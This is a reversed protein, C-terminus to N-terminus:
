KGLLHTQDLHSSSKIALHKALYRRILRDTSLKYSLAHSAGGDAYIRMCSLNHWSMCM